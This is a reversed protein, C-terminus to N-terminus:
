SGHFAKGRNHRKIVSKIIKRTRGSKERQVYTTCANYMCRRLVHVLYYRVFPPKAFKLVKNGISRPLGRTITARSVRRRVDRYLTFSINASATDRETVRPDSQNRLSRKTRNVTRQLHSSTFTNSTAPFLFISVAELPEM